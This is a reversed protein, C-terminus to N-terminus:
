MNHCYNVNNVSPLPMKFCFYYIDYEKLEKYNHLCNSFM